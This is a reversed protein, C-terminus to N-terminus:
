NGNRSVKKKKLNIYSFLWHHYGCCIRKQAAFFARICGNVNIFNIYFKCRGFIISIFTIKWVTLSELLAWWKIYWKKKLNNSHHFKILAPAQNISLAIDGKIHIYIGKVSRFSRHPHIESLLQVKKYRSFKAITFWRSIYYM